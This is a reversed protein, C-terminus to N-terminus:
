SNLSGVEAFPDGLALDGAPEDLDPLHDLLVVREDLHLRVLRGDLDGRRGASLDRADEDRLALEHRDARREDDDAVALDPPSRPRAAARGPARAEALGSRTLAVGSTRLIAASSPTSRASRAPVPGPPRIM